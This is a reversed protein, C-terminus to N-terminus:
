HASLSDVVHAGPAAYAPQRTIVISTRGPLPRGISETKRGMILIAWRPSQASSTPRCTGPLKGDRGIVRNRAM